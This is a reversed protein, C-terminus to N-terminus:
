EELVEASSLKRPELWTESAMGLAAEFLAESENVKSVKGEGQSERITLDHDNPKERLEV